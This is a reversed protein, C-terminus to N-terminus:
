MTTWGILIINPGGISTFADPIYLINGGNSSIYGPESSSTDVGGSMVELAYLTGGRSVNSWSYQTYQNWAFSTFNQTTASLQTLGAGDTHISWLAQRTLMLLTHPAVFRIQQVALKQSTFLTKAAGSSMTQVFVTSSSTSQGINCTSIFLQSGDDNSDVDGCKFSGTYVQQLASVPQREGRHIDLIYINQLTAYDEPATGLLLARNNDLWKRPIYSLASANNSPAIEEQLHNHVIDLLYTVFPGSQPPEEDFLIYQQNPSWQIHSFAAYPQSYLLTQAYEGDIRVLRLEDHDALRAVFVIWEGNSSIQADQIYTDPLKLIAITKHTTVDFRQLVATPSTFNSPNNYDSSTFVINQHTGLMLSPMTTSHPTDAPSLTATPPTTDCASILLTAFCCLLLALLTKKSM